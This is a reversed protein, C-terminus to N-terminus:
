EPLWAPESMPRQPALAATLPVPWTGARWVSTTAYWFATLISLADPSGITGEDINEITMAILLLALYKSKPFGPDALATLTRAALRLMMLLYLAGGVLGFDLGLQLLGNHANPAPWGIRQWIYRAWISDPSWFVNYGWGLVPRTTVAHASEIWLPLRGTMSTDKGLAALLLEPDVILTTALVLATAALGAYLLLALRWSRWRLRIAALAVLAAALLSTTGKSYVMAALIVALAIPWLRREPEAQRPDVFGLYLWCCVGMLMEVSLENKQTFVGHFTRVIAASIAADNDYVKGHFLPLALWSAIAALFLSWAYIRITGRPGYTVLALYGFGFCTALSITRRASTAPDLSWLASCLCYLLILAPLRAHRVLYSLFFRQRAALLILGALVAINAARAVPDSARLEGGETVSPRLLVFFAIEYTWFAVLGFLIVPWSPHIRRQIDATAFM